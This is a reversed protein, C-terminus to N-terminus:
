ESVQCLQRLFPLIELIFYAVADQNPFWDMLGHYLITKGQEEEGVQYADLDVVNPAM